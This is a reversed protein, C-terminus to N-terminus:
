RCQLRESLDKFEEMMKQQESTLAELGPVVSERKFIEQQM